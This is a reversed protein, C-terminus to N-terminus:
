DLNEEQDVILVCDSTAYSVCSLIFGDALQDEDLFTQDENNTTGSEVKCACASCAGARCSSPLDLGAEEAAELIYQDDECDIVTDEGDPSRLTISYAM